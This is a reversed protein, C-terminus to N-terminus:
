HPEQFGKPSMTGFWAWPLDEFTAENKGFTGAIARREDRKMESLTDKEMFLRSARELISLRGELDHNEDDRVAAM